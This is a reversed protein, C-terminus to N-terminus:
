DFFILSFFLISILLAKACKASARKKQRNFYQLIYFCPTYNILINKFKNLLHHPMFLFVIFNKLM